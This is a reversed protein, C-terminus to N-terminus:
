NQVNFLFLSVSLSLSLSRTLSSYYLSFCWYSCCPNHGMGYESLDKLERISDPLNGSLKNKYLQIEQVRLMLDWLEPITGTLENDDVYFLELHSMQHITEPITGNLNNKRLRFDVKDTLHRVDRPITGTLENSDLYLIVTAFPCFLSLSFSQYTCPLCFSQVVVVVIIGGGEAVVVVDHNLFERLKKLDWLNPITGTLFNEDLGLARLNTLTGIIDPIKGELKNTGLFLDRVARIKGVENPITGTFENQELYLEEPTHFCYPFFSLFFSLFPCVHFTHTLSFFFSM